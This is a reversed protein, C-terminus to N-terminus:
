FPQYDKFTKEFEEDSMQLPDIFQSTSKKTRGSPAASRVQSTTKPTRQLTGQPLNQTSQQASRQKLLYNGVTKYAELFPTGEPINGLTKQHEMEDTILKYVGSQRQEHLTSMISPEQWVTNLSAQDWGNILSITERGEPTSKLDDVISQVQVETDSVSHNGPVYKPESSVDFDLPDLNKDKLLKKIAEPNGQAIDILYNLKGDDLLEAKQLMQIKKRYPAISQMKQTYNLGMQMLKIAEDSSRAQFEKGNAKMPAMVAEYFSKYDVEPSEEEGEENKEESPETSPSSSEESETSEEKAADTSEEVSEAMPEEEISPPAMSDIEEDSLKDLDEMSM